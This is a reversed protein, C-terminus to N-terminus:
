ELRGFGWQREECWWCKGCHGTSIDTSECSRTLPFLRDTIDLETYMKSIQRKDINAFPWHKNNSWVPRTVAPDRAAQETDLDIFGDTVQKPPNATIATYNVGVIGLDRYSHQIGFLNSDDQEKVFWVHHIVNDNGTLQVCCQLVQQSVNAASYMKLKNACTFVHIPGQHNRMLIYLLLSSDAGGSFSIGIPGDAIDIAVGSVTVTKM